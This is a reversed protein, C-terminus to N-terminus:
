MAEAFWEPPDPDPKGSGAGWYVMERGLLDSYELVGGELKRMLKAINEFGFREIQYQEMVFKEMGEINGTNVLIRLIVWPSGQKFGDFVCESEHHKVVEQIYEESKNGLSEIIARTQKMTAEDDFAFHWIFSGGSSSGFSYKDAKFPIGVVDITRGDEMEIRNWSTVLVDYNSDRGKELDFINIERYAYPLGTNAKLSPLGPLMDNEGWGNENLYKKEAALLKPMFYDLAQEKVILTEEYTEALGITPEPVAVREGGITWVQEVWDVGMEETRQRNILVLVGDKVELNETPVSITEEEVQFSIQKENGLEAIVTENYTLDYKGNENLVIRAEEGLRQILEISGEPTSTVTAMIESSLEESMRTMTRTYPDTYYSVGEVTLEMVPLVSGSEEEFGLMTKEGEEYERMELLEVQSSTGIPVYKNGERGSVYYHDKMGEEEKSPVTLTVVLERNGAPDVKYFGIYTIEEPDLGMEKAETVIANTKEVGLDLSQTSELTLDQTGEIMSGTFAEQTVKIDEQMEQGPIQVEAPTPEPGAAEEITPVPEGGETCGAMLVVAGTLGAIRGAKKLKSRTDQRGSREKESM